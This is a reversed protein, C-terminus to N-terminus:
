PKARPGNSFKEQNEKLVDELTPPSIPKTVIERGLAAYLRRLARVGCDRHGNEIDTLTRSAVGSAAALQAATVRQAKRERILEVILDDPPTSPKTM